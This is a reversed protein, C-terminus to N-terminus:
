VVVFYYQIDILFLNVCISLSVFKIDDGGWEEHLPKLDEITEWALDGLDVFKPDMGRENYIVDVDGETRLADFNQLGRNVAAVLRDHVPQPTNVVEFGHSTFKPVLRSQTLQIFNEWREDAGTLAMVEREREAMARKMKPTEPQWSPPWHNGDRHWLAVREKETPRAAQVGAQLLLTVAAVTATLYVTLIMTM